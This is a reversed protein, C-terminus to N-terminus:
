QAKWGPCRRCTGGGCVGPLGQANADKRLVETCWRLVAGRRTFLAGVELVVGDRARFVIHQFILLLVDQLPQEHWLRHPKMM